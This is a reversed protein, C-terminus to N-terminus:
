IPYFGGINNVFFVKQENGIKKIEKKINYENSLTNEIEDKEKM